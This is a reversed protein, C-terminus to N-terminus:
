TCVGLYLLSTLIRGRRELHDMIMTKKGEEDMYFQFFSTFDYSHLYIVLSILSGRNKWWYLICHDRLM